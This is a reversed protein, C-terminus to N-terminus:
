LGAASLDITKKVMLMSPNLVYKTTFSGRIPKMVLRFESPFENLADVAVDIDEFPEGDNELVDEQVIPGNVFECSLVNDNATMDFFNVGDDDTEVPGFEEYVIDGELTAYSQGIRLYFGEEIYDDEIYSPEGPNTVVTNGNGISCAIAILCSYEGTGMDAVLETGVVKGSVGGPFRFDNILGATHRCTVHMGAEFPVKFQVEVCRAREIIRSCGLVILHEISPQGRQTTFYFSTRFDRIPMLGGPDVPEALDPATLPIELIEQTGQQAVVPQIDGVINIEMFEARRREVEYKVQVMPAIFWVYFEADGPVTDLSRLYALMPDLASGSFSWTVKLETLSVTLPEQKIYTATADFVRWADGIRDDRELWDDILGQGTYSMVYGDECGALKAADLVQQTVDITGKAYQTWYGEALVKVREIPIGRFGRKVTDFPVQDGSNFEFHGDEGVNIDSVSVLLDLHGVHWYVNRAHLVVNPDNRAEPLVFEPAWYPHQKLGEAVAVQQDFYDDPRTNLTIDVVAGVMDEPLGILWAIILPEVVGAETLYSLWVWRLQGPALLEHSPKKIKVTVSPFDNEGLNRQMRLIDEDTRAHVIPDFPVPENIYAFYVIPNTM